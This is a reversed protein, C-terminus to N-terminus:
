KALSLLLLILRLNHWWSIFGAATCILVVPYSGRAINIYILRQNSCSTGSPRYATWHEIVNTCESSPTFIQYFSYVFIKMITIITRDCVIALYFTEGVQKCDSPDVDPITMREAYLMCTTIRVVCTSWSTYHWVNLRMESNKFIAPVVTLWRYFLCRGCTKQKWASRRVQMWCVNRDTVNQSTSLNLGYSRDAHFQFRFNVGFQFLLQSRM